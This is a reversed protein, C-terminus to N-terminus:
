AWYFPLFFHSPGREACHCHVKFLLFGHGTDMAADNIIASLCSYERTFPYALGLLADCESLPSATLRLFSPWELVHQILSAGQLFSARLLMLRVCLSLSQALDLQFFCRSFDSSCLCLQPPSSPPFLDPTKTKLPSSSEACSFPHIGTSLMCFM